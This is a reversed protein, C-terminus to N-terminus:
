KEKEPNAPTSSIESEDDGDSEGERDKMEFDENLIREDYERESGGESEMTGDLDPHPKNMNSSVGRPPTKEEKEEMEVDPEKGANIIEALSQRTGVFSFRSLDPKALDPASGPGSDQAAATGASSPGPEGADGGEAAGTVDREGDGAFLLEM